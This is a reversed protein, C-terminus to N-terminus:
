ACALPPEIRKAFITPDISAVVEPPEISAIKSTGGSALSRAVAPLMRTVTGPSAANPRRAEAIAPVTLTDDGSTGAGMVMDFKVPGILPPPDVVTSTPVFAPLM